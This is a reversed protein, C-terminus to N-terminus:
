AETVQSDAVMKVKKRKKTKEEKLDEAKVERVIDSDKSLIQYAIDMPVETPKGFELEIAKGAGGIWLYNSKLRAQRRRYFELLMRFGREM